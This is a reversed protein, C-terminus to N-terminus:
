DLCKLFVNINETEVKKHNVNMHNYYDIIDQCLTNWGIINKIAVYHISLIYFLASWKFIVNETSRFYVWITRSSIVIWFYTIHQQQILIEFRLFKIRAFFAFWWNVGYFTFFKKKPLWIKLHSFQQNSHKDEECLLFYLILCSICLDSLLLYDYFLFIDFNSDCNTWSGEWNWIFCLINILM